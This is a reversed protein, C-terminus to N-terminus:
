QKFQNLIAEYDARAKELPFPIRILANEPIDFESVYDSNAYLILFDYFPNGYYKQSMKDLRSSEIRWYEFKDSTNAPLSIFPMPSITGDSNKLAAYRDYDRYPM